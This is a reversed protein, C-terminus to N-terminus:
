VPCESEVGTSQIEHGLIWRHSYTIEGDLDELVQIYIDIGARLILKLEVDVGFSEDLDKQLLPEINSNFIAKRFVEGRDRVKIFLPDEDPVVPAVDAEVLFIDPQAEGLRASPGLFGYEHGVTERCKEGEHRVMERAALVPGIDVLHEPIRAFHGNSGELAWGEISLHFIANVERWSVLSVIAVTIGNEIEQATVIHRELAHGIRSHLCGQINQNGTLFHLLHDDHNRVACVVLVSSSVEEHILHILFSAGTEHVAKEVQGGM